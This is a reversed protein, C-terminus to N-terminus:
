LVAQTVSRGMCGSLEGVFKRLDEDTSPGAVCNSSWEALNSAVIFSNRRDAFLVIKAVNNPINRANPM